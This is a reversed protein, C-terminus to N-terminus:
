GNKDDKFDIFTKSYANLYSQISKLNSFFYGVEDDSAFSGKDDLEKIRKDSQNIIEFVKNFFEDRQDIEHNYSETADEYKEIKILLNRIFFIFSIIVVILFLIIITSFEM